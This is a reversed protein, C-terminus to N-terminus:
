RRDTHAQPWGSRGQALDISWRSAAPPATLSSNKAAASAWTVGASSNTTTYVEPLVAAGLPAM